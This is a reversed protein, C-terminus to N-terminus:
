QKSKRKSRLDLEAWRAAINLLDLFHYRSQAKIEIGAENEYHNTFVGNQLRDIFSLGNELYQQIDSELEEELKKIFVKNDKRQREKFRSFDYAINWIWRPNARLGQKKDTEFAQMMQHHIRIKSLLSMPLGKIGEPPKIHHVLDKKMEKVLPYESDWHLSKGLLNISNKQFELTGEPWNNREAEALRLEHSKAAKEAEDAFAAAKMIPFKDTVIAIGGSLSIGKQHCCFDAFEEKIVEALRIIQDWRGVVFLDDGGAYIIQTYERFADGEELNKGGKEWITNLYGKFFWDLQRSMAAYYSFTLKKDSLSKFIHGLGDVDMKLVALRKLEGEGVSLEHFFKPDGVQRKDDIEEPLATITPIKSGGYLELPLTHNSSLLDQGTNFENITLVEYAIEKTLAEKFLFFNKEKVLYYHLGLECPAVSIENKFKGKLDLPNSSVVLYKLDKLHHGLYIQKATDESILQTDDNIESKKIPVPLAYDEDVKYFFDPNQAIEEGTITDTKEEGGVDSPEFFQEYDEEILQYNKRKKNRDIKEAFLKNIAKNIDGTLIDEQSVEKYGMVVSIRTQHREFFAKTVEKELEEFGKKAQETNPAILFFNGGSAYMINGQRLDLRKVLLRLVADGLLQVYFSRGKLNKSAQKSAIDYIFRQIGSLDARIILLPQESDTIEHDVGNKEHALFDYLCIALGAKMKAYDFWSVEQHINSPNPINSAYKYLLTLVINGTAQWQGTTWELKDLEECFNNWCQDINTKESSQEKVPFASRELSFTNAPIKYHYSKQNETLHEFPSALFSFTPEIAGDKTLAYQDSLELIKHISSTADNLEVVQHFKDKAGQHPIHHLLASLYLQDKNITM